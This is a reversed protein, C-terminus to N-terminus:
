TTCGWSRAVLRDLARWAISLGPEHALRHAHMHRLTAQTRHVGGPESLRAAARVVDGRSMAGEAPSLHQHGLELALIARQCEAIEASM